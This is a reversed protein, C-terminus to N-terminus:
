KRTVVSLGLIIVTLQRALENMQRILPTELQEVQGLLSSIRGIESQLGTAVVVGTGLGATVLTGSYAM